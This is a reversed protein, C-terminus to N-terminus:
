MWPSPVWVKLNQSSDGDEFNLKKSNKVHLASISPEQFLVFNAHAKDGQASEPSLFHIQFGSFVAESLISEVKDPFNFISFIGKLEVPKSHITLKKDPLNSVSPSTLNVFEVDSNVMDVQKNFERWGHADAFSKLQKFTIAGKFKEFFVGPESSMKSVSMEPTRSFEEAADSICSSFSNVVIDFRRLGPKTLKLM